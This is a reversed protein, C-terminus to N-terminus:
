HESPLYILWKGDEVTAVYFKPMKHADFDFDTFAISQKVEPKMGTDERCIVFADPGEDDNNKELTWFAMANLRDNEALRRRFRKNAMYHSAIVDLLWLCSNEEAFVIAGNSVYINTFLPNYRIM